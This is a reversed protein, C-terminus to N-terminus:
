RFSSICTINTSTSLKPLPLAPCHHIRVKLKSIFNTSFSSAACVLGVFILITRPKAFVNSLVPFRAHWLFQSWKRIEKEEHLEILHLQKRASCPEWFRRARQEEVYKLMLISKHWRTSLLNPQSAATTKRMNTEFIWFSTTAGPKLSFEPFAKENPACDLHVVHTFGPQPFREEDLLWLLQMHRLETWVNWLQFPLKQIKDQANRSMIAVSYLSESVIGPGFECLYALMDFPFFWAEAEPLLALSQILCDSRWM